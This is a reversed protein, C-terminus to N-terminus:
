TPSILLLPHPKPQALCCVGGMVASSAISRLFFGVLGSPCHSTSPLLDGPWEGTRSGQFWPCQLTSPSPGLLPMGGVPAAGPQLTPCWQAGALLGLQGCILVKGKGYVLGLLTKRQRSVLHERSSSSNKSHARAGPETPLNEGPLAFHGPDRRRHSSVGDAQGAASHLRWCCLSRLEALM